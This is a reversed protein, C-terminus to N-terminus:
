IPVPTREETIVSCPPSASQGGWRPELDFIIPISDESWEGYMGELSTLILKRTSIMMMMM